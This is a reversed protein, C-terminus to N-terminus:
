REYQNGKHLQFEKGEPSVIYAFWVVFGISDYKEKFKKFKSECEEQTNLLYAHNIRTMITGRHFELRLNWKEECMKIDGEKLISKKILAYNIKFTL